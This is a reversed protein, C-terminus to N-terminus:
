ETEEKFKSSKGYILAECAKMVTTLWEWDKEIEGSNLRAEGYERFIDLQEMILHVEADRMPQSKLNVIDDSVTYKSKESYYKGSTLALDRYAKKRTENIDKARLVLEWLLKEPTLTEKNM